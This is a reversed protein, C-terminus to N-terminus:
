ATVREFEATALLDVFDTVTNCTLLALRLSPAHEPQIYRAIHKRFLTLGVQEGYFALNLELHHTLLSVKDHFSVAARDKGAFIWPNGIAARGVLVGACGTQARLRAVDAVTRVDGNGLVPISVAQCIEAIAGWDAQGGYAQDRTRGHVALLSAGNEAIIRAVELYNRQNESWGLRMKGTIPIQLTKSLTGFLRAIREPFRLMGAGAGRESISKVYCGMNIDICDPQLDQLYQATTILKDVDHGYIQFLIPRETTSFKLKQWARTAGGAPKGHKFVLEDVNVFETYSLASGLSRCIARFPLDSFGDMPALAVRGYVPIDRIFFDPVPTIENM